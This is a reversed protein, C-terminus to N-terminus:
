FRYAAGLLVTTVDAGRFYFFGASDLAVTVIDVDLRLTLPGIRYGAMAGGIVETHTSRASRNFSGPAARFDARVSALGIKGALDVDGFQWGLLAEAGAARGGLEGDLTSDSSRARGFDFWFAEVAVIRNFRYGAALRYATTNRECGAPGCDFNWSSRGVGGAIYAEQASAGSFGALLAAFLLYGLARGM